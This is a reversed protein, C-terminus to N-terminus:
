LKTLDVVDGGARTGLDYFTTADVTYSVTFVHGDCAVFNCSTPHASGFAFTDGSVGPEWRDRMPARYTTRGIDNDMGVYMNENDAGSGGTGYKDLDLSKEGVLITDTLGDTIDDRRITSREFSVGTYYTFCASTAQVATGNAVTIVRGGFYSQQASVSNNSPGGGQEDSQVAGVLVAYDTRAVSYGSSPANTTGANNAILNTGWNMPFVSPRRRTPCNVITWPTGVM